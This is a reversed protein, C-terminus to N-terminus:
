SANRGKLINSAYSAYSCASRAIKEADLRLAKIGEAISDAQRQLTKVEESLAQRRKVLDNVEKAMDERDRRLAEISPLCVDNLIAAKVTNESGEFTDRLYGDPLRAVFQCWLNIEESKTMNNGGILDFNPVDGRRERL